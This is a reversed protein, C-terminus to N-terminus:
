MVYRFIQRANLLNFQVTNNYTNGNVTFPIGTHEPEISRLRLPIYLESDTWIGPQLVLTAYNGSLNVNGTLTNPLSRDDYLGLVALGDQIARKVYDESLNTTLAIVRLYKDENNGGGQFLINIFDLVDFSDPNTLVFQLASDM